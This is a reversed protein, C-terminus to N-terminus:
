KYIDKWKVLEADACFNYPNTCPDFKLDNYIFAELNKSREKFLESTEKLSSVKFLLFTVVIILLLNFCLLLIFKNKLIVM